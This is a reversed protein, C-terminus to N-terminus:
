VHSLSQVLLGVDPLPVVRQGLGWLRSPGPLGPSVATSLAQSHGCASLPEIGAELGCRTAPSHGGRLRRNVTFPPLSAWM